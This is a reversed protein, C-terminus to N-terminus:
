VTYYDLSGWEDVFIEGEYLSVPIMKKRAYETVMKLAEDMTTCFAKEVNDADVVIVKMTPRKTKPFDSDPRKEVKLKNTDKEFVIRIGATFASDWIRRIYNDPYQINDKLPKVAETYWVTERFRKFARDSKEGISLKQKPM